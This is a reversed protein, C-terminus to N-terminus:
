EYRLADVPNIKSAKWAPIVGSIAGTITAFLICGVFLEKPFAPSLFGWGLDTLVKGTLSSLGWGLLVGIVGSILGLIGSEFLFISFVSSNKGGISKIIGIEKIREIVSTIMTNSTNVVSVLVSILAILIVFGIVINMAGLYTELLENFSQVTFDEKGEELDREKRLKKEVNEVVLDINETDVRAVLMGYSINEDSFFDEAFDNTIYINSDDPPNGVSEYFGVIRMKEGNIEINQNLDYVKDFIKGPVLYNYGLVVKGHDNSMLERGKEIEFNSFEVILPIEPDYSLLLAYIKKEGQTIEAANIYAGSVEEVGAAREVARLDDENLKINTGLGSGVGGKPQIIIKDASGSSTFENIYNYLGLGMSIFIFITAIGLFISLITLFSRTKRHALGRLSYAMLEKSIM